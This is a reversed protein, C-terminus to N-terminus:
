DRILVISTVIYGTASNEFYTGLNSTLDLTNDYKGSKPNCAAIISCKTQLKSVLGAKAVSITQQEMAEHIAVRDSEKM